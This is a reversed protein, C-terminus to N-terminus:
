FGNCISSDRREIERTVSTDPHTERITVGYINDIYEVRVDYRHGARPTLLTDYSITGRSSALFSSTTFNFVLYSPRGLPIGVDVSPGNLDVSGEYDIKCGAGVRYIDVATRVTSFFSGSKTDARVYLNKQLTNSYPKISCGAVLSVALILAARYRLM